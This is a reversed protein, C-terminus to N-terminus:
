YVYKYDKFDQHDLELIQTITPNMEISQRNKRLKQISSLKPNCNLCQNTNRFIRPVIKRIYVTRSKKKKHNLFHNPTKNQKVQIDSKPEFKWKKKM